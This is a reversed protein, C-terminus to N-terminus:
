LERRINLIIHGVGLPAHDHALISALELGGNYKPEYALFLTVLM